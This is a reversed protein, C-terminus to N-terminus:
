RESMMRDEPTIPRLVRCPNGAAVVDAPIDRTVVSGAGIVANDGICVGPLVVVHGGLWVNSGVRIPKAYELGTSREAADLPHCATYFGCSPGVMVNDGFTVPACDIIECNYNAYFEKGTTIHYGYDCHFPPTFFSDEGWGGILQRLLAERQDLADSPLQSLQRCLEAARQRDAALDPDGPDYLQGAAMKERETM